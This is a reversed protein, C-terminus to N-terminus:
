SNICSPVLYHPVNKPAPDFLIGNVLLAHNLSAYAGFQQLDYLVDCGDTHSRRDSVMM